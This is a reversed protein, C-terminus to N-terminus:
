IRAAIIEAIDKVTIADDKEKDKIGDGLMTMCFPCATCVTDAGTAIAQETRSHNIRTGLKEETWMLGGGAGCCLSHFHNEKMEQLHAGTGLIVERPAEFLTNHRGLYCPDHFTVVPPTENQTIASLKLKGAALLQAILESHHLVEVNFDTIGAQKAFEPYENKFTNYGHPCTVLIKQIHYNKFLEINSQALMQFMYENGLRRPQDGCCNEQAGLIGFNIGAHNLIKIMALTVKKAREDFSGACGVWFLLDVNSDNALLKIALGEAWNGRTHAGFGWPNSNTEVNRFFTGLEEPFRSEMLTESQRVGIIKPIHENKVPCVFMCAGCTTCAWIEEPKYTENILAPLNNESNETEGTNKKLIAKKNKLMHWKLNLIINKPSLPKGTRNAPCYDDCRGCEMCAFSDLHDKWTMDTINVIGFKEATDMDIKLPKLFGTSKYNQCALNIPGFFMHAYKSRPVYIVFWFVNIIHIWWWIKVTTESVPNFGSMWQAIWQGIFASYTHDSNHAIVAGEYAFFTLTVTILLTYIMGSEFSPYTYSKPRFVWRRIIFYLTALIVLIGLIDATASHIHRILGHGYFNWNPNFGELIHNLSVTDFTLSGYLLFIHVIGTFVREKKVSCLLFFFSFVADRIRKLMNDRRNEPQAATILQYRLIIPQFFGYFTLILLIFFVIVELWHLM